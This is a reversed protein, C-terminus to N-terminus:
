NKLVQVPTTTRVFVRRTPLSMRSVFAICHIEDQVITSISTFNWPQSCSVFININNPSFCTDFVIAMCQNINETFMCTKEISYELRELAFILRSQLSCAGLLRFSILYFVKGPGNGRIRNQLQAKQYSLQNKICLFKIFATSLIM